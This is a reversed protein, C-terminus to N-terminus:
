PILNVAANLEDWLVQLWDIEDYEHLTYSDGNIIIEEIDQDEGIKIVVQKKIPVIRRKM